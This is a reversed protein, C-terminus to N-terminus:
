NKSEWKQPRTHAGVTDPLLSKSLHNRNIKHYSDSHKKHENPSQNPPLLMKIHLKPFNAKINQITPVQDSDATLLFLKDYEAKFAGAQMEIALRVDTKKRWTTNTRKGM